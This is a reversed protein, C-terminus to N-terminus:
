ADAEKREAERRRAREPSSRSAGDVEIVIDTGYEGLVAEFTM